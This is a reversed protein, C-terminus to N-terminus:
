TNQLSKDTKQKDDKTPGSHKGYCIEHLERLGELSETPIALAITEVGTIRDLRRCTMLFLRMSTDNPLEIMTKEDPGLIRRYLQPSLRRLIEKYRTIQEQRHEEVAGAGAQTIKDKVRQMYVCVTKTSTIGYEHKCYQIIDVYTYGDIFLQYLKNIRLEITANSSKKGM